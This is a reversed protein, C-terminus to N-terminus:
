KKLFVVQQIQSMPIPEFPGRIYVRNKSDIGLFTGSIWQTRFTDFDFYGIKLETLAQIVHVDLILYGAITSGGKFGVANNKISEFIGVREGVSARDPSPSYTLVIFDGQQVREVKLINKQPIGVPPGILKLEGYKDLGELLGGWSEPRYGNHQTTVQVLDGIEVKYSKYWQDPHYFEGCQFANAINLWVGTLIFYM